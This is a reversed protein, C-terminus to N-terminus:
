GKIDSKLIEKAVPLVYPKGSLPNKSTVVIMNYVEEVNQYTIVEEPTGSCFIEGNKLMILNDCFESALNLDHLVILITVSLKENIDKLVNMISIQHNIDLHATPEDLCLLEPEQTLASAISVLQQEGGSLKWLPKERYDWIGLLEMYSKAIKYDDETEFMQFRNFYPFRGSLVYNLVTIENNEIFQTVLGIRQARKKSSMKFINDEYLYVEGEFPTLIGSCAKLLTSKGAGNPGIIGNFSGKNISLNIDKLFFGKHYGAKLNKIKLIIM